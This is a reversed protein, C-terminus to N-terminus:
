QFVAKTPIDTFAAGERDPNVNLEIIVPGDSGVAVDVGAFELGQFCMLSKEALRMSEEFFPPKEGQILAGTDPNHTWLERTPLGDIAAGLTGTKLNVPAVIGGGSQNDVLSGARGIRVYALKTQAKNKNKVVWLRFTNVSSPNLNAYWEHQELFAEILKGRRHGIKLYQQNLEDVALIEKNDMREFLVDNNKRIINVALFGQGAWSEVPKFCIKNWTSNEILNTFDSLTQLANGYQDYGCSKDLYGIFENSPIKYLALIAKEIIKNQSTKQYPLQNLHKVTSKYEEMNMHALKDKWSINKRWFGATHYYGPGQHRWAFLFVMEMIQRLVSLHGEKSRKLTLEICRQLKQAKTAKKYDLMLYVADFSAKILCQACGYIIGTNVLARGSLIIRTLVCRNCLNRPKLQSQFM